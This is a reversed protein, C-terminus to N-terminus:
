VSVIEVWFDGGTSETESAVVSHSDYCYDIYDWYFTSSVSCERWGEVEQAEASLEVGTSDTQSGPLSDTDLEWESWAPFSGSENFENKCLQPTSVNASADLFSAVPKVIDISFEVCGSNSGPDENTFDIDNEKSGSTSKYDIRYSVADGVSTYCGGNRNDPTNTFHSAIRWRTRSGAPVQNYEWNGYPDNEGEVHLAYKWDDNDPGTGSSTWDNITSYNVM